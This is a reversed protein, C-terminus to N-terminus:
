AYEHATYIYKYAYCIKPAYFCFNRIGLKNRPPPLRANKLGKEPIDAPRLALPFHCHDVMQSTIEFM